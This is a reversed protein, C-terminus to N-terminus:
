WGWTSLGNCNAWGNAYEWGVGINVLYWNWNCIGQNCMFDCFTRPHITLAHTQGNRLFSYTWYGNSWHYTYINWSSGDISVNTWTPVAQGQANYQGCIPQTNQWNIWIMQETGQRNSVVATDLWNDWTADIRGGANVGHNESFYEASGSKVQWVQLPLPHYPSWTGWDTGLVMEMFGSGSTNSYGWNNDNVYYPYIAGGTSFYKHYFTSSGASASTALAASLVAAVACTQAFMSFPKMLKM